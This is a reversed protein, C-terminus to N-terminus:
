KNKKTDVMAKLCCKKHTSFNIDMFAMNPTEFSKNPIKTVSRLKKTDVSIM